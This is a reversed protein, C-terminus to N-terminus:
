YHKPMTNSDTRYGYFNGRGYLELSHIVKEMVILRNQRNKEEIVIYNKRTTLSPMEFDKCDVLPTIISSAVGIPIGTKYTMYYLCAIIGGKNGNNVFDDICNSVNTIDKIKEFSIKQLHKSLNQEPKRNAIGSLKVMLVIFVIILVIFIFIWSVLVADGMIDRRFDILLYMILLVAFFKTKHNTRFWLVVRSIIQNEMFDLLSMMEFIVLVLFSFFILKGISINLGIGLYVKPYLNAFMFYITIGAILYSVSKILSGEFVRANYLESIRCVIVSVALILIGISAIRVSGNPLLYFFFLFVAFGIGMIFCSDSLVEAWKGKLYYSVFHKLAIGLLLAGISYILFYFNERISYGPASPRFFLVVTIGIYLLLVIPYVMLKNLTVDAALKGRAQM